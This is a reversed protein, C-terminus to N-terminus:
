EDLFDEMKSKVNEKADKVGEPEKEARKLSVLEQHYVICILSPRSSEVAM